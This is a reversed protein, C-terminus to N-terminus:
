PSSPAFRLSRWGTKGVVAAETNLVVVRWRLIRGRTREALWSPTQYVGMGPRLLAVLVESGQEDEIELRVLTASENETWSLVPKQGLAVITLDPPELLALTRGTPSSNPNGGVYYRLVPIPFGAVAASHVM